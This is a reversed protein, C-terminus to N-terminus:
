LEAPEADGRLLQVLTMPDTRVALDRQPAEGPTVDVAGDRVSVVYREDGLELQVTRDRGAAADPKFSARLSLVLREVRVDADDPQGELFGFGVRALGGIVPGLQAGREPLEYVTAPAPPPLTRRRVLGAKELTRLRDTLLDTGLGPLGESLDTYRKPGMMLDRVILLTWREGVVDLAKAVACFQRYDRRQGM